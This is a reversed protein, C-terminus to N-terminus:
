TSRPRRKSRSRAWCRRRRDDRGPLHRGGRLAGAIFNTVVKSFHVQALGPARFGTSGAARLALRQHPQCRVALKGTVALRLRQLERLAGGVNALLPPTLNPRSTPTSASTTARRPRERRHARLGPLGALRRARRQRESAPAAMSTPRWSAACRDGVARAPLRCGVRPQADVPLGLKVRARSTSTSPWSTAGCSAPTSPSPRTPSAPDDATAPSATPARARDADDALSRALRQAHQAPRLPLRQTRVVRGADLVWGRRAGSAARRGLFRHGRSPVRAPFWASLDHGLQPRQGRLAPLGPRQRHPPQLRRFRLVAATGPLEHPMRLDAM